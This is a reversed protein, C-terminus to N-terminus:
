KKSLFPYSGTSIVEFVGPGNLIDAEGDIQFVCPEDTTINVSTAQCLPTQTPIGLQMLGLKFSGGEISCELKKDSHSRPIKLRWLDKGGYISSINQMVFTKQGCKFDLTKTAEVGQEDTDTVKIETFKRLDPNGCLAAVGMPVYLALAMCHCCFCCRCCHRCTEFKHAMDADVGISFYNLMQKESVESIDTRTMKIKWIDGKEIHDSTRVNEIFKAAKKLGRESMGGGWGLSRSMDNGTGFPCVAIPPKWDDSDLPTIKSMLSVVWNVTGDGGAAVIRLEHNQLLDKYTEAFTHQEDPLRVFHVGEIDKIKDMFRGALNAGSAPNIFVLVPRSM